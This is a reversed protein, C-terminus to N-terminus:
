QEIQVMNISDELGNRHMKIGKQDMKLVKQDM